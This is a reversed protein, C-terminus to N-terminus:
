PAALSPGSPMSLEAKVTLLFNKLQSKVLRTLAKLEQAHPGFGVPSALLEECQTSLSQVLASFCKVIHRLKLGDDQFLVIASYSLASEAQALVSLCERKTLLFPLDEPAATTALAAQTRELGARHGKSRPSFLASPRPPPSSNQSFM